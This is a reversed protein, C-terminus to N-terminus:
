KGMRRIVIKGDKVSIEVPELYEISAGKISCDPNRLDITDGVQMDEVRTKLLDNM